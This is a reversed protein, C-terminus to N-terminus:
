SHIKHWYEKVKEATNPEKVYENVENYFRVRAKKSMIIFRVQIWEYINFFYYRLNNYVIFGLYYNSVESDFPTDEPRCIVFVQDIKSGSLNNFDSISQFSEYIRQDNFKKVTVEYVNNIEGNNFQEFLDGPKKSTTNTISAEGKYGEVKINSNIDEFYNKMLLGIIKQPTNGSDPVEKILQICIKSLFSSNEEKLIEVDFSKIREAESLFYSHLCVSFNMLDNQSINEIKKILLVVNKAIEVPRRQAAWQENIGSTAKAINLPGSKRCPIGRKLLNSRIPGEYIARPNCSYFSNYASYDEDILKALSIVLVIERYGWVKTSFINKIISSLESDIEKYDKKEALNFLIEMLDNIRKNRSKADM